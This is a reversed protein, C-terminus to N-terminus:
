TQFLIDSVMFLNESLYFCFFGGVIRGFEQVELYVPM